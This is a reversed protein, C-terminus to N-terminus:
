PKDDPVDVYVFQIHEGGPTKKLTEELDADSIIVDLESLSAFHVLSNTNLKSKDALLVVRSSIEILKRKINAMEISPTSLGYPLHFGNTALFLTDIHLQDLMQIVSNGVTCHFQKRMVGGLLLTDIADARELCLAIAADNTIVTLDRLPQMRKALEMTTTGTDLAVATAPQLFDLAKQAIAMKAAINQTSKESTTLEKRAGSMPIAGGHTRKLMNQAELRSLDSRVTAASVCLSECLEAVSVEGKQQLLACIKQLRVEAFMGDRRKSVRM